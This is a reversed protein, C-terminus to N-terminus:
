AAQTQLGDLEERADVWTQKVEKPARDDIGVHPRDHSHDIYAGIAARARDITEFENRWIVREKVDRCWSEFSPRCSSSCASNRCVRAFAEFPCESM